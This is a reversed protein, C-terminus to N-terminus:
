GNSKTILKERKELAIRLKERRSPEEEIKNEPGVWQFEGCNGCVVYDKSTLELVEKCNSCISKRAM